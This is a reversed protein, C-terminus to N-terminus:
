PIVSVLEVREEPSDVTEELVWWGVEPCYFKFENLNKEIRSWDRTQLCGKFKGAKLSVEQNLAMVEGMDEARSEYYEQRYVEGTKPDAPMMIGPAAGDVGAEWSGDHNVVVGNEFNDVAEGFYWVNGWKDSVYWDNTDEVLEEGIWVKDNVVITEVGMVTKKEDTIVVEIREQPSKGKSLYVFKRGKKLSFFQNHRQEKFNEAEFSQSSLVSESRNKAVIDPSKKAKSTSGFYVSEGWWRWVALLAIVGLLLWLGVIILQKHKM